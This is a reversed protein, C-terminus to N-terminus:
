VFLAQKRLRAFYFGDMGHMGPLIQKGISCSIGWNGTIKEESAEPQHTLFGQILDNNEEALVSCTVYVLLGGPKLLTWAANLLQKQKKVLEPIDTMRRLLKIDPHRRIVGSASCPVDLLIRDFLRNDSWTTLDACVLTANLQLRQLNEQVANLRKQQNDLAILEVNPQLELIHTTKGGPAACADLIRQNPMLELLPAALQAAGDQVSVEGKEFGPLQQISIPNALLIGSETENVLSPDFEAVKKVYNERSIRQQNVRLTFPPHQNNAILIAEWQYPWQKKVHEIFWEPHAYYSSLSDLSSPQDMEATRRQYNRLVANVFGKAWTKNLNVAADVTEAIAAHAPIRMEKLQFLGILLLIYIDQDKSKLPKTLLTNALAILSFYLRCVGYCLAQVLARDRSDLQQLKESSLITDLAHDLAHGEKIVKFLVLAAIARPNNKM